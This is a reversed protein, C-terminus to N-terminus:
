IAELSMALEVSDVIAEFHVVLIKAHFLPWIKIAFVIKVMLELSPAFALVGILVLAQEFVVVSVFAVIM